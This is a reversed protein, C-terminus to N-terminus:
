SRRVCSQVLIQNSQSLRIRRGSCLDGRDPRVPKLCDAVAIRWERLPGANASGIEDTRYDRQPPLSAVFSLIQHRVADVSEKGGMRAAKWSGVVEDLHHVGPFLALRNVKVGQVREDASGDSSDHVLLALGADVDDVVPLHRLRAVRGIDLVTQRPEAPRSIRENVGIQDIEGVHRLAHEAIGASRASLRGGAVSRDRDGVRVCHSAVDLVQAQRDAFRGGLPRKESGCRGAHYRQEKAVVIVGVLASVEECNRFGHPWLVLRDDASSEIELDVTGIQGHAPMDLIRTELEGVEALAGGLVHFGQIVRQRVYWGVAHAHVEAPSIVFSRVM